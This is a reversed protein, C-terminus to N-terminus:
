PTRRAVAAYAIGAVAARRAPLRGKGGSHAPCIGTQSSLWGPRIGRVPSGDTLMPRRQRVAGRTLRAGSAPGGGKQGTGPFRGSRAMVVEGGGRIGLGREGSRPLRVGHRLRRWRAMRQHDAAFRTDLTPVQICNVTCFRSTSCMVPEAAVM